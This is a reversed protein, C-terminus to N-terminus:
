PREGQAREKRKPALYFPPAPIQTACQADLELAAQSERRNFFGFVIDPMCGASMVGHGLNPVIIHRALSGLAKAVREGHFPPTVPDAGGSLVLAAGQKLSGVQYFAPDIVAKPWKACVQQYLNTMPSPLINVPIAASDESCIVSFHMGQAIKQAASGGGLQRSLGALAMLKGAKAESLAFPLAASLQPAYLVARVMNQVAESTLSITETQRTYSNFLEVNKPLSALWDKVQSQLNPYAAACAPDQRCRDFVGQLASASDRDGSVPLVMDPPAVGDLVMRRVASPFLRLYELAARTGYSGGILDIKQYGLQARVADLDQMALTTSFFRLDVGAQTATGQTLQEQCQRMQALSFQSDIVVAFPTLKSPENCRLPFSKGTGRQDVFVLDRRQNLRSFLGSLSGSLAIASQGPGGALFFLPAEVSRRALAPVVVFHIDITQLPNSPDLARKIQGCRVESSHGDVRCDVLSTAATAVQGM